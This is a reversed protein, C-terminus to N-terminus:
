GNETRFSEDQLAQLPSDKRDSLYFIGGILSLPVLLTRIALMMALAANYSMGQASMLYIFSGDWLGIGNISLPLMAALNSGATGLTLAAFSVPAGVARTLLFMWGLTFLHFLFSLVMVQAIKKPRGRYDDALLLLKKIKEPMWTVGTCWTAAKQSVPLLVVPLVTAFGFIIIAPALWQPPAQVGCYEYIGGALGLALLAWIGTLRETLVAALARARGKKRHMTKYVRYVDGGITSPLFNNFFVSTFYYRTLTPLPFFQGHITLLLRWKVASICVGLVMGIFVAGVLIPRASLLADAVHDWDAQILLVACLALTVGGKFLILPWHRRKSSSDPTSHATM